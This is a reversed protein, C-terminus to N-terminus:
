PPPSSRPRRGRRSTRRGGPLAPRRRCACPLKASRGPCPHAVGPTLRLWTRLSRTLHRRTVWCPVIVLLSAPIWPAARPHQHCPLVVNPWRERVPPSGALFGAPGLLLYAQLDALGNTPSDDCAGFRTNRQSGVGAAISWIALSGGRGTCFHCRDTNTRLGSAGVPQRGSSTDLPLVEVGREHRMPSQQGFPAAWYSPRPEPEDGPELM